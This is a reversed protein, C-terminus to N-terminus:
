FIEAQLREIFDCVTSIYEKFTLLKIEGSNYYKELLTGRIVHLHHIKVGSVPLSSVEEATAMM